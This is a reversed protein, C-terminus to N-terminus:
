ATYTHPLSCTKDRLNFDHGYFKVWQTFCNDQVYDSNINVIIAHFQMKRTLVKRIGAVNNNETHTKNHMYSMNYVSFFQWFVRCVCSM